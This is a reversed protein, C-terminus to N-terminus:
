NSFRASFIKDAEFLIIVFQLITVLAVDKKSKRKKNEDSVARCTAKRGCNPPPCVIWHRWPEFKICVAKM